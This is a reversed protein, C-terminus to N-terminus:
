KYFHINNLKTENKGRFIRGNTLNSTLYLCECTLFLKIKFIISFLFRDQILFYLQMKFLYIKTHMKKWNIVVISIIQFIENQNESKIKPFSSQFIYNNKQTEFDKLTQSQYM